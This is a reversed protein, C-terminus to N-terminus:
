TRKMKTLSANMMDSKNNIATDLGGLVRQQEEIRQGIQHSAIGLNNLQRHLQDLKADVKADFVDTEPSEETQQPVPKEDFKCDLSYYLKNRQLTPRRELPRSNPNLVLLWGQYEKENACKFVHKCPVPLSAKITIKLKEDVGIVQANALDIIDTEQMLHSSDTYCYLRNKFLAVFRERYAPYLRRRKRLQGSWDAVGYKSEFIFAYKKAKGTFGFPSRFMKMKKLTDNAKQLGDGIAEVKNDIRVLQDTQEGLLGAADHAVREASSAVQHSNDLSQLVELKLQEIERAM